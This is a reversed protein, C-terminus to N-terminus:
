WFGSDPSMHPGMGLRLPNKLAHQREIIQDLM